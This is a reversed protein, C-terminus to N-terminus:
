TEPTPPPPPTAPRSSHCPHDWPRPWDGFRGRMEERMRQQEEPTLSDWRKALMRERWPSGWGRGRFPFGGFLIKALVLLGLAQWYTIVKVPLVAALVGNWLAYVALTFLALFGALALPMLFM